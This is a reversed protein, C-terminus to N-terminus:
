SLAHFLVANERESHVVYEVSLYKEIEEYYEDFKETLM